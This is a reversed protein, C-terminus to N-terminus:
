TPVTQIWAGTFLRSITFLSFFSWV